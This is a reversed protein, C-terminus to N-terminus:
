GPRTKRKLQKTFTAVSSEVSRNATVTKKIVDIYASGVVVADVGADVYAAVDAPKSVGFGVGIPLSSAKQRLASKVRKIADLTYDAVANGSAVSKGGINTRVGTTGYVAVVYLFGSSLGLLNQLRASSTNPSALFIADVGYKRAAGVYPKSEDISMDPLILGDIGVDAILSVARDYGLNYLINTYTMLVLPTHPNDHRIKKAAHLFKAFTTKQNLSTTSAEQIAPGDALPDSFPFGIEVIDAGGKIMGTIVSVSEAMSPYGAMAYTVLAKENQSKLDAFKKAIRCKHRSGDDDDDDCDRRSDRVGYSSASM